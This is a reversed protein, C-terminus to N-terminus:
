KPAVSDRLVLDVPLTIKEPKAKRNQLRWQLTLVAKMGMNKKAIHCTTLNPIVMTSIEMDDFGVVGIDEPVRYGLERLVNMLFIAARDNSCMFVEPLEELTRVREAVVAVNKELVYAEVDRLLSYRMTKLLATQMAGDEMVTAMAEVYGLARAKISLSYELDGIFGIKM